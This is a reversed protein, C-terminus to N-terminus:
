ETLVESLYITLCIFPFCNVMYHSGSADRRKMTTDAVCKCPKLSETIQLFQFSM